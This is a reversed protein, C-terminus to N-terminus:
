FVNGTMWGGWFVRGSMWCAWFVRGSADFQGLVSQRVYGVARFCVAQCM